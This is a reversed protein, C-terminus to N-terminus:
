ANKRFKLLLVYYIEEDFIEPLTSKEFKTEILEVKKEIFGMLEDYTYKGERIEMLLKNDKRWVSFDGTEAIELSMDVLRITHAMNKLDYERGGKTNEEYRTNNRKDIWDWYQTYKKCYQQYGDKNYYVFAIHKYGKPIPSVRVASTKENKIIGHFGINYPLSEKQLYERYQDANGNEKVKNLTDGYRDHYLYYGGKIHNIAQLGCFAQAIGREKLFHKLPISINMEEYSPLVYCFDMLDKRELAVPNNIKKNLGVAKGIQTKAYGLFTGKVVKTIFSKRVNIVEQFKSDCFIICHDPTNTLELINPNGKCLLELFKGIEYYVIDNSENSYQDKYNNILIKDTNMIYVGRIDYDSKENHMNYSRSGSVCKFIIKGGDNIIQQEIIRSEEKEKEPINM